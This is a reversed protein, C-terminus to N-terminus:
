ENKKEEPEEPKESREPFAADVAEEDNIKKNKGTTQCDLRM